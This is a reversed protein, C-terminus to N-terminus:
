FSPDRYDRVVGLALRFYKAFVFTNRKENWRFVREESHPNEEWTGDEQRVCSKTTITKPTVKKVIVVYSDANISMTALDGTNVLSYNSDRVAEETTLYMTNDTIWQQVPYGTEHSAVVARPTGDHLVLTQTNTM